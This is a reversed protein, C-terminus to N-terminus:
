QAYVLATVILARGINSKVSVSLYTPGCQGIGILWGITKLISVSRFSFYLKAIKFFATVLVSGYKTFSYLNLILIIIINIMLTIEYNVLTLLLFKLILFHLRNTLTFTSIFHVSVLFSVEVAKMLTVFPSKNNLIVMENWCDHKFIAMKFYRCLAM